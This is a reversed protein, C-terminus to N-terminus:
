SPVPDIGMDCTFDVLRHSSQNSMSICAVEIMGNSVNERTTRSAPFAISWCHCGGVVEIKYIDALQRHQAFCLCFEVSYICSNNSLM